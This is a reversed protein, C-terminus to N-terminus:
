ASALHKFNPWLALDLEPVLKALRQMEPDLTFHLAAELDPWLPTETRGLPRRAAREVGRRIARGPVGLRAVAALQKSLRGTSPPKGLLPPQVGPDRVGLFEVTRRYEGAPDVRCREYQLVLVQEAPFFRLLRELQSAHRAREVIDTTYFVEDAAFKERRQAFLWRYRTVPDGLMIMLRADPAARRLLPPTWGDLMYRGTWEGRLVGPVHPFHAHYGAVDDATMEDMAFPDFYHLSRRGSEPPRLEPHALLAEVWWEIGTGIGGVGIFDPPGAQGTTRASSPM